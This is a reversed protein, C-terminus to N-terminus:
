GRKIVAGRITTLLGAADDVSRGSFVVIALSGHDAWGCVSADRGSRACREYGGSPGPDVDVVDGLKLRNSLTDFRNALDRQPNQVFRTTLLVTTARRQKDTYLLRQSQEDLQGSGILGLLEDAVKGRNADTSASLGPIAVDAVISAPYQDVYPKAWMVVGGCCAVTSALVFLM